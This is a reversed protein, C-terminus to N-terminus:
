HRIQYRDKRHGQVYGTRYERTPLLVSVNKQGMKIDGAVELVIDSVHLYVYNNLNKVKNSLYEAKWM